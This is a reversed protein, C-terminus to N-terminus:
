KIKELEKEYQKIKTKIQNIVVISYTEEATTIPRYKEARLLDDRCSQLRQEANLTQAEM